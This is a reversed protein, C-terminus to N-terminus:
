QPNIDELSHRWAGFFRLEKTMKPLMGWMNELNKGAGGVLFFVKLDM